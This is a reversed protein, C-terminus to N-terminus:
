KIKRCNTVAKHFADKGYARENHTQEDIDGYCARLLSALANDSVNSLERYYRFISNRIYGIQRNYKTQKPPKHDPKVSLIYESPRGEVEGLEVETFIKISRVYDLPDCLPMKNDGSISLNYRVREPLNSLLKELKNSAKIIEKCQEKIHTSFLRETAGDGLTVPYEEMMHLVQGAFMESVTKANISPYKLERDEANSKFWKMIREKRKSYNDVSM